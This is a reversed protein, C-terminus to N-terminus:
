AQFSSQNVENENRTIVEQNGPFPSPSWKGEPLPTTVGLQSTLVTSPPPSVAKGEDAEEWAKPTLLKGLLEARVVATWQLLVGDM